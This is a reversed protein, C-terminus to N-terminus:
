GVQIEDGSLTTWQLLYENLNKKAMKEASTAVAMSRQNSSANGVMHLTHADKINYSGLTERDKLIRGSYILCQRDAPVRKFEDSNESKDPETLELKLKLESVLTSVPLVMTWERATSTKVVITITAGVYQAPEKQIVVKNPRWTSPRTIGYGQVNGAGQKTNIEIPVQSKSNLGCELSEEWLNIPIDGHTHRLIAAEASHMNVVGIRM